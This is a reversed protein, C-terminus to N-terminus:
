VIGLTSNKLSVYMISLTSEALRSELQAAVSMFVIVNNVFYQVSSTAIYFLWQSKEGGGEIKCICLSM